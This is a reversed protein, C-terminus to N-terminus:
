ASVPEALSPQRLPIGRLTGRILHLRSSNGTGQEFRRAKELVCDIAMAGLEGAREDILAGSEVAVPPLSGPYSRCAHSGEAIEAFPSFPETCLVADPRHKAVWGEFEGAWQGPDESLFCVPLQDPQPLHAQARLYCSHVMGRTAADFRGTLALGVRRFEADQLSTLMGQTNHFYDPCVVDMWEGLRHDNIGVLSFADWATGLLALDLRRHIPFVISGIGRAELIQRLRAPSMGPERTWLEELHYGAAEARRRAGNLIIRAAPDERWHDRRNEQNIWAIPLSGGTKRETRLLALNRAAANPQYGLEEAILQIRRRTQLPISPANKLALCITSPHVGCAQAVDRQTVPPTYAAM